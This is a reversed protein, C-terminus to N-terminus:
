PLSATPFPLVIPSWSARHFFLLVVLCSVVLLLSYGYCLAYLLLLFFFSRGDDDYFFFLSLFVPQCSVNPQRYVEVLYIDIGVRNNSKGRLPLHDGCTTVARFM